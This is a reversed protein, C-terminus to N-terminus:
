KFFPYGSRRIKGDKMRRFFEDQAHPPVDTKIFFNTMLNKVFADYEEFAQTVNNLTQETPLNLDDIQKPHVLKDRLNKLSILLDLSTAFYDKQLEQREWTACIQVFTKKFKQLFPSRDDYGTYKDFKNYYFIDAEMLSFLGRICARCLARFKLADPKHEHTIQLLTKFDNAISNHLPPFTDFLTVLNLFEEYPVKKSKHEQKDM